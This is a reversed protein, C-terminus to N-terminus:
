QVAAAEAAAMIVPALHEVVVEEELLWFMLLGVGILFLIGVVLLPIFTM